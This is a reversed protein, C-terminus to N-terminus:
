HCRVTCCRESKLQWHFYKFQQDFALLFNIQCFFRVFDNTNEQLRWGDCEITANALSLYFQIISSCVATSDRLIRDCAFRRAKISVCM